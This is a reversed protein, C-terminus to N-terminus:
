SLHWWALHSPDDAVPRLGGAGARLPLGVLGGDAVVELVQADAIVRLTAGRHEVIVPEADPVTIALTGDALLLDARVDDDSGILRLSGAGRPSWEIDLATAPQDGRPATRAGAVAPHPSLVIRGADTFVVYPVSIAGTWEGPETVGRLWFFLCPRGDADAFHSAAYHGGPGITLQQWAAQEFRGNAYSGANGAVHYTTGDKWVSVLLVDADMRDTRRVLQPCEFAVGTFPVESAARSALLGDYTWQELDPSTFTSVGAVEGAGGQGVLMRWGDSERIIMPDRFVTDGPQHRAVVEGKSWSMLDGSDPRAVRVRGFDLEAESVATYFLRPLEGDGPDVACGSWIGVEDADPFLAIPQIQWHLLDTSTAHGWHCDQRWDLSGPVHQFFLHYTGEVHVLGHPDNMWGFPPTLHVAPRLDRACPATVTM